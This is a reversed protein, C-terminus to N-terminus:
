KIRGLLDKAHAVQKPDAGTMGVFKELDAKGDPVKQQQLRALARYYFLSASEPFRAITRELVKEADPFQKKNILTIAVDALMESNTMTSDNMKGLYENMKELNGAEAATVAGLQM